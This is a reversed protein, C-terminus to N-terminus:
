RPLFGTHELVPQSRAPDAYVAVDVRLMAEGPAPQVLLDWHWERHGMDSSGSRRLSSAGPPDLRLENVLNDAVWLAMTRSELQAQTDIAQAGVRALAALAIAIVALAVLVELLTFGRASRPSGIALSMM